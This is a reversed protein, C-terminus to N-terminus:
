ADAGVRFVTKEIEGLVRNGYQHSQLMFCCEYFIIRAREDWGLFGVARRWVDTAIAAPTHCFLFFRVNKYGKKYM